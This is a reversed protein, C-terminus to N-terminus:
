AYLRFWALALPVFERTYRHESEHLFTLSKTGPLERFLSEITDPPCEEDRGGSTLLVPRELRRAHSLTDIYGLAKWAQSGGGEEPWARRALGYAGRWDALPFNTLFPLDAAACRVGYDRFISAMLLAAGGGQSTGFFSIRGPLVSRQEMAWRVGIAACTLWDCYGGKAQTAITDPLVPWHGHGPRKSEDPGNPTMYGMPSIHLVHFGSAALEPHRSMESGYGPLHVILPAPESLAPQWYVYFSPLVPAELLGYESGHAHAVAPAGGTVSTAATRYTYAARNARCLIEETWLDIEGPEPYDRHVTSM